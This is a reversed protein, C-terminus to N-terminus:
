SWRGREDKTMKALARAPPVFGPVEEEVRRVWAIIGDVSEPIDESISVVHVAEHLWGTDRAVDKLKTRPRHHGVLNALWVLAHTCTEFMWVPVDRKQKRIRVIRALLVSPRWDYDPSRIVGDVREGMGRAAVVEEAHAWSKAWVRTTYTSSPGLAGPDLPSRTTKYSTSFRRWGRRGIM